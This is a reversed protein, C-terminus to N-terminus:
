KEKIIRLGSSPVRSLEHLVFTARYIDGVFPKTLIFIGKKLTDRGEKERVSTVPLPPKGLFM